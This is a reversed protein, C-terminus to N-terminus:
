NKDKIVKALKLIKYSAKLKSNELSEQNIVFKIRKDKYYIGLHMGQYVDDPFETIILIPKNKIKKLILDINPNSEKTFYILNLNTTKDEEYEDINYLKIKAKHIKKDKYFFEMDQKLQKNKYIGIKFEKNIEPWQIFPTIKEIFSINILNTAHVSSFFLLILFISKIFQNLM